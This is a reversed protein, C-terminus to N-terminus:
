EGGSGPDLFRYGFWPETIIYQPQDPHDELKKRLLRIYTRLYESQDGHEPGWVARLIRAHPLPVGAHQALFALLDFEKPSLHLDEGNKSVTRREFDIRLAGVRFPTSAAVETRVRRLVARVRALLEALRFPKVVYDDAGAGLAEV